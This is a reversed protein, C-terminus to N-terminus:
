QASDLLDCEPEKKQPIFNGLLAGIIAPVIWNFGLDYFPLKEILSINIGMGDVVTLISVLLAMYTAGKFSNDSKIKHGFLTM